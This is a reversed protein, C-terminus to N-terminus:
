RVGEYWWQGLQLQVEFAVDAELPTPGLAVSYVPYWRHLSSCVQFSRCKLLLPFFCYPFVTAHASSYIEKKGNKRDQKGLNGKQIIETMM